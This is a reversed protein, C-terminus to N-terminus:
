EVSPARSLVGAPAKAWGGRLSLVPRGPESAGRAIPAAIVRAPVVAGGDGVAADQPRATHARRLDRRLSPLPPRLRLAPARDTSRFSCAGTVVSCRWSRSCGPACRTPPGHGLSRGSRMSAPLWAPGRRWRPSAISTSGGDPTASTSRGVSTISWKLHPLERALRTVMSLQDSTAEITAVLDYRAMLSFREIVAPQELVTSEDRASQVLGGALRVRISRVLPIRRLRDILDDFGDAAPDGLSVIGTVLGREEDQRWVWEAAAVPDAAGADSWVIGRV